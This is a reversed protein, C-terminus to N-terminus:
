DKSKLAECVLGDDDGDLNNPDNEPGGCSEFLAQADEQYEFNSCNLLNLNCDDGIQWVGSETKEIKSEEFSGSEILKGLDWDNGSVELGLTALLLVFIAVLAIRFKGWFFFLAAVIAMLILIIIIRFSGKRRWKYFFGTKVHKTSTEEPSM